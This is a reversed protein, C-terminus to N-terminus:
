GSNIVITHTLEVATHGNKRDTGASIWSRALSLAKIAGIQWGGPATQVFVISDM